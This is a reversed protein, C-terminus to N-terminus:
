MIQRCSEIPYHYNKDFEHLNLQAKLVKGGGPQGRGQLRTDGGPIITEGNRKILVILTGRPTSIERLTKGIWRNGRELNIEKMSLNDRDEFQEAAMILLYGRRSLRIETRYWLDSREETDSGSLFDPM